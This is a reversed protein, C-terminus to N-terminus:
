GHVYTPIRGVIRSPIVTCVRAGEAFGRLSQLTEPGLRGQGEISAKCGTTRKVAGGTITDLRYKQFSSIPEEQSNTDDQAELLLALANKLDDACHDWAGKEDKILTEAFEAAKISINRVRESCILLSANTLKAWSGDILKASPILLHQCQGGIDSHDWCPTQNNSCEKLVFEADKSLPPSPSPPCAPPPPPAPPLSPPTLPPPRPCATRLAHCSKTASVLLVLSFFFTILRPTVTSSPNKPFLALLLGM